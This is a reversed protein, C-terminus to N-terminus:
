DLLNIIDSFTKANKLDAGILTKHYREDITAILSLATLSDWEEYDSLNDTLKITGKELDMCEEILAVKEGISLM